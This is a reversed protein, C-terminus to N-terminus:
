HYEDSIHIRLELGFLQRLFIRLSGSMENAM